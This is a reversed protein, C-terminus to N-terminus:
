EKQKQNEEEKDKQLVNSKKNGVYGMNTTIDTTNELHEKAIRENKSFSPMDEKEELNFPIAIKNRITM